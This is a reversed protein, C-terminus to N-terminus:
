NSWCNGCKARLSIWGDRGVILHDLLEIDLLNGARVAERTVQCDEPSERPDGSPHNHALIAATANWRVPANFLEGIRILSANVSGRYVIDVSLVRQKTDLSVVRLEERELQGMDLQLMAGLVAPNTVKLRNYGPQMAVRKGFEIAAAIAAGKARGVGAVLDRLEHAAMRSLGLLGGARSLLAQATELDSLNTILTLLEADSMAGAGVADLRYSPRDCTALERIKRPQSLIRTNM